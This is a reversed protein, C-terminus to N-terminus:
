LEVARLVASLRAANVGFDSRGFRLRAHLKLVGDSFQATTYDPFGWVASRTVYTIRGEEVSGALVHTRPMARMAADVRALDDQDATVVRIAGGAMDADEAATVPQHWKAADTPALRVYAMLALIVCVIIVIIYMAIKM